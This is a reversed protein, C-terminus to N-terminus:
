QGAGNLHEMVEEIIRTQEAASKGPHDTKVQHRIMSRVGADRERKAAAIATVEPPDITHVTATPQDPSLKALREANLRRDREQWFMAAFFAALIYGLATM